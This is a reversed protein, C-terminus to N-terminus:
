GIKMIEYAMQQAPAVADPAAPIFLVPINAMVYTLDGRESIGRDNLVPVGNASVQHDTGEIGYTLFYWEESGFPAALYDLVRLLGKVREADKGVSSPIAAYGFSAQTNRTVGKAGGPGTPHRAVFEANPEAKRM